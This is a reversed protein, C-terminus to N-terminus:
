ALDKKSFTICTASIIAIILMIGYGFRMFIEQSGLMDPELAFRSLNFAQLNWVTVALEVMIRSFAPTKETLIQSIPEAMLGVIWASIVAFMAIAQSAMTTVLIALAALVIWGMVFGGYIVIHVWHIPAYDYHKLAIVWIITLILGLTALTIALGVFKGLIWTTRNIPSSLQSDQSGSEKADHLIKSGWLIAVISGTLNFTALGVDFMIKLVEEITFESITTSLFILFIGALLSPIFIRDRRLRTFTELTIAYFATM